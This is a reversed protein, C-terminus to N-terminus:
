KPRRPGISLLQLDVIQSISGVVAALAIQQNIELMTEWAEEPLDSDVKTKYLVVTAKAISHAHALIMPYLHAIRAVRKDSEEQEKEAIEDSVMTTGAIVSLSFADELQSDLFLGRIRFMVETTLADIDFEIKPKKKRFFSM